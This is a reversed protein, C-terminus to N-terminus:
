PIEEVIHGQAVVRFSSLGTLDDQVILEVSEGVGLRITVGHKDQGAFSSRVVIGFLGPGAKDSYSRDFTHLAFQGNNKINYINNIVGNNRRLVLGNTLASIGGFTTDDMASGDTIQYIFRTVDVRVESGSDSARTDFLVPSGTILFSQPTVSGDVNLDKNLSIVIDGDNFDFDLPSDLLIIDGTISIVEGFYFRREGLVTTFIGLSKGVSFATINDVAISRNDIITDVTLNTAEGIVQSFFLDIAPTTQDQLNVPVGGNSELPSVIEVEQVDQLNIVATQAKIVSVTIMISLCCFFIILIKANSEKGSSKQNDVM